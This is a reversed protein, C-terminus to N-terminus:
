DDAGLADDLEHQVCGCRHEIGYQDVYVKLCLSHYQDPKADAASMCHGFLSTTM